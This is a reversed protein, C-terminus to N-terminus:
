SLGLSHSPSIYSSHRSLALCRAEIWEEYDDLSTPLIKGMWCVFLQPESLDLFKDLIKCTFHLSNWRLRSGAIKVIGLVVKLQSSGWEWSFFNHLKGGLGSVSNVSCATDPFHHLYEGLPSETTRNSDIWSEVSLQHDMVAKQSPWYFMFPLYISLARSQGASWALTPYIGKSKLRIGKNWLRYCSFLLELENWRVFSLSSTFASGITLRRTLRCVATIWEWAGRLLMGTTAFSIASKPVGPYNLWNPM